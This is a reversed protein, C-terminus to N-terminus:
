RDASVRSVLRGSPTTLIGETRALIRRSGGPNPPEFSAVKVLKPASPPWNEYEAELLLVHKSEASAPFALHQPSNILRFPRGVAWALDEPWEHLTYITWHPLLWQGIARGWPGQGYRYTWEPTYFGAHLWKLCATLLLMGVVARRASRTEFARWALAAVGVSGIAFVVGIPRYYTFVITLLFTAYGSVFVWLATAAAIMGFFVRRARPSLKGSWAAELGAAAMALLGVLAVPASASALGPVVTGGIIAALGVRGWDLVLGGDKSKMEDRLPKSFLLFAFPSLPAGMLFVGLPVAWAPRQNLPAALAALLAGVSAPPTWPLRQTLPWALAAAAAEVSAVQATWIAWAVATLIPPAIMKVSFDADRRGLVLVALALVLLPPWGGCLFAASAWLGTIWDARRNVLRDLAAITALGTVLDVGSSAAHNLLACSGFWAFGFFIATTADGRALFRRAVICGAALGAIASPWLVAGPDPRGREGLLHFLRSVAARLPWVDPRWHGYVRGLPGFGESAALGLHADAGTLDADAGGVLVFVIGLVLLAPACWVKPGPLQFVVKGGDARVRRALDARPAQIGDISM